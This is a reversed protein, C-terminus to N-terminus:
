RQAAGQAKEELAEPAYTAELTAELLGQESVREDRTLPQKFAGSAEMNDMFTSVDGVGRAHVTITLITQGKEVKPRVSTIRVEDPLTTEFRNFLETWSFTRRDILDNALRADVSATEVEKMDVSTRLRTAVARLDGARAENQAAHTALETDSRSYRLVRTANFISAAAVIALLVLLGVRIPREDYFPRTALNTRIV